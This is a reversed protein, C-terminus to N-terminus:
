LEEVDADRGLEILRARRAGDLAAMMKPLERDARISYDPLVFTEVDVHQWDISVTHKTVDFTSSQKEIRYLWWRIDAALNDRAKHVDTFVMNIAFDRRPLKEWSWGDEAKPPRSLDEELLPMLDDELYDFWETAFGFDLNIVTLEVSRVYTYDQEIKATSWISCFESRIQRSVQALPPFLLKEDYIAISTPHKEVVCYLEYIQNRIEAPLGLFRKSTSATRSM